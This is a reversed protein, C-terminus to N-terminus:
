PTPAAEATSVGSMDPQGTTQLVRQWMDGEPDLQSRRGTVLALPVITFRSNWRGVMADNFGALAAHVAHQGLANCYQADFGNSALSRITYSPDIYKVTIDWGMRSFRDKIRDRLFVGIDGLRVNGSADTSDPEELLQQGAGEAVVIVAHGRQALRKELVDMLSGPGDLEFPVEPVICLNVDPSSLTAQAAIFGGHRGMLKVIGVGNRAGRAENHASEIAYTAQNVATSFGFSQDVWALDNDITKPVGIVSLQQGRERAGAALASAGRLTGDGGICFLVRVGLRALHDLMQDIPQAGRSSGLLTGGHRHVTEVEDPMLRMPEPGKGAVGAYGYRFGLIEPVHYHFHLTLVISRIVDNLGPCLGGCTVIGACLREPRFALTPRPGALTFAAPRLGADISPQLQALTRAVLIGNADDFLRLGSNQLPSPIDATLREPTTEETTPLENM